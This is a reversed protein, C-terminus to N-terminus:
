IRDTAHMQACCVGPSVRFMKEAGPESNGNSAQLGMHVCTLSQAMSLCESDKGLGM